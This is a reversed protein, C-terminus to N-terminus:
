AGRCEGISIATMAILQAGLLFLMTDRSHHPDLDGTAMTDAYARLALLRNHGLSTAVALAFKFAPVGYTEVWVNQPGTTNFIPCDHPRMMVCGHHVHQLRLKCRHILIGAGHIHCPRNHLSSNPHTLESTQSHM